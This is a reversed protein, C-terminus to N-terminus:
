FNKLKLGATLLAFLAFGMSLGNFAISVNLDGFPSFRAIGFAAIAMVGGARARWCM